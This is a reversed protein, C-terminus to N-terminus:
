YLKMLDEVKTTIKCVNAVQDERMKILSKEVMGRLQLCIRMLQGLKVELKLNMIMKTAEVIFNMNGRHGNWTQALRDEFM